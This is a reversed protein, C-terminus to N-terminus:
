NNMAGHDDVRDLVVTMRALQEADDWGERPVIVLRTTDPLPDLQSVVGAVDDAEVRRRSLIAGSKDYEFVVWLM